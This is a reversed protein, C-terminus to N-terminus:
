NFKIQGIKWRDSEYVGYFIIHNDCDDTDCILNDEPIENPNDFTYHRGCKICSVEFWSGLYFDDNTAEHDGAYPTIEGDNSTKRGANFGYLAGVLFTRNPVMVTPTVVKENM